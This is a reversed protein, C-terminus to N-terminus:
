PRTLNVRLVRRLVRSRDPGRDITPLLHHDMQVHLDAVEVRGHSVRDLHPRREGVVLRLVVHAYEEIRGPM